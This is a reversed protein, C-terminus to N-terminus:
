EKKRIIYGVLSSIFIVGFIVGIVIGAIVGGGLGNAAVTVTFFFSQSGIFNKARCEYKGADKMTVDPIHLSSSSSTSEVLINSNTQIPIPDPNLYYWTFEASLGRVLMVTLNVTNGVKSETINNNNHGIAEPPVFIVSCQSTRGLQDGLCILSSGEFNSKTTVVNVSNEGSKWIRGSLILIVNTAPQGGSWSCGLQFNLDIPEATCQMNGEPNWALNLSLAISTESGLQNSAKCTFNGTDNRYVPSIFLNSHPPSDGHSLYYRSDAPLPEGNLNWLFTIASGKASCHLTVSEEGVWIYSGSTNSTLTVSSVPSALDFSVGNSTESNIWNKATCTFTENDKDSVPSITLVTNNESLHYNPDQPLPAGQLSWSYTVDAGRATCNLCVSDLGPWVLESANSTLKVDSVPSYSNYNFAIITM